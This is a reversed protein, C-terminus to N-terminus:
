ISELFVLYAIIARVARARFYPSPGTAIGEIALSFLIGEEEPFFIFDFCIDFLFPYRVVFKVVLSKRAYSALRACPSDLRSFIDTGSPPPPFVGEVAFASEM